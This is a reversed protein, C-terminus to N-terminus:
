PTVSEATKRRAQCADCQCLERLLEFTYIGTSHGDNWLFSVAYRGVVEAQKVDLNQSIVEHAQLIRLPNMAAGSRAERCSACPCKRRLEDLGYLSVHGDDWEIQLTSADKKRINTPVM